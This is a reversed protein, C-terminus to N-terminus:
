TYHKWLTNYSPRVIPSPPPGSLPSLIAVDTRACARSRSSDNQKKFEHDRACAKRSKKIATAEVATPTTLTELQHSPTPTKAQISTISNNLCKKQGGMLLKRRPREWRGRWVCECASFNRGRACTGRGKVDMCGGCVAVTEAQREGEGGMMLVRRGRPGRWRGGGHALDFRSGTGAGRRAPAPGATRGRAALFPYVALGGKQRDREREVFRAM